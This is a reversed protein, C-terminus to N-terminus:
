CQNAGLFQNGTKEAQALSQLVEEVEERGVYYPKEDGATLVRYWLFMTAFYFLQGTRQALLTPMMEQGALAYVIGNVGFAVCFGAIIGAPESRWTVGLYKSYIVLGVSTIAIASFVAVDIDLLANLYDLLTHARFLGVMVPELSGIIVAASVFRAMTGRPLFISPGVVKGWVESVAAAVFGFGIITAAMLCYDHLKQDRFWAALVLLIFTKVAAFYLYRAFWTRSFKSSAAMVALLIQINAIVIWLTWDVLASTQSLFGM